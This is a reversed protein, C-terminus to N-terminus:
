YLERPLSIAGMIFHRIRSKFILIETAAHYCAAHYV